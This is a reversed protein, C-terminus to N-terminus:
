VGHTVFSAVGMFAYYLRGNVACLIDISSSCIPVFATGRSTQEKRIGPIDAQWSLVAPLSKHAVWPLHVQLPLSPLRLRGQSTTYPSKRAHNYPPADTATKDSLLATKVSALAERSWKGPRPTRKSTHRTVNAGLSLVRTSEEALKARHCASMYKQISRGFIYTGHATHCFGSIKQM